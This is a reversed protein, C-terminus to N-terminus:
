EEGRTLNLIEDTTMEGTAKGRLNAILTAGKPSTKQYRWALFDLFIKAEELAPQPLNRLIGLIETETTVM